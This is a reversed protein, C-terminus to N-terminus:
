RKGHNCFLHWDGCSTRLDCMKNRNTYCVATSEGSVVKGNADTVTPTLKLMFGNFDAYGGYCEVKSSKKNWSFCDKGLATKPMKSMQVGSATKVIGCAKYDESAKYSCKVTGHKTTKSGFVLEFPKRSLLNGVTLIQCADKINKGRYEAKIVKVQEPKTVAKIPASTAGYNITGDINEFYAKVRYTYRTGAKLGADRMTLVGSDKWASLDGVPKWESSGEDKREVIYGDAQLSAFWQIRIASTTCTYRDIQKGSHTVAKVTRVKFPRRLILGDTMGGTRGGSAISGEASASISLPVVSENAGFSVWEVATGAIMMLAVSGVVISKKVINM